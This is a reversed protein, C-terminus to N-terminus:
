FGGGVARAAMNIFPDPYLGIAMSFIIAVALVTPLGPSYTLGTKETADRMFMAVVIRLYFYISIAANLVAIVALRNHGTRIV